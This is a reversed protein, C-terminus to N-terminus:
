TGSSSAFSKAIMISTQEAMAEHCDAISQLNRLRKPVLSIEKKERYNYVEEV